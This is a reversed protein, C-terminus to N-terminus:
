HDVIYIESRPEHHTHYPWIVLLSWHVHKISGKIDWAWRWRSQLPVVCGTSRPSQSCRSHLVDQTGGSQGTSHSWSEQFWGSRSGNAPPPTGRQGCHIVHHNGRSKSCRNMPYSTRMGSSAIHEYWEEYNVIIFKLNSSRSYALTTFEHWFIM